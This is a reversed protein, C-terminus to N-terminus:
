VSAKVNKVVVWADANEYSVGVRAYATYETTDKKNKFEKFIQIERKIGVILNNPFTLWVEGHTNGTAGSYTGAKTESFLPVEKVQIGFASTVFGAPGNPRSGNSIVNLALSEPQVLSSSTTTMSYLYDQVLGSGAYFRLDPRRQMYKRPLQKIANNFTARTIGAGGNDVVRANAGALKSWGDFIKLTGDSSSTDGNIFVDELDNGFQTAMMRAIHDALADGELGDELSETSIEWDLRIKTTTLSIKSFTAGANVGDDVAETAKRILREGISVKDIDATNSRMRHKRVEQTLVTADFMYDIFRDSQEANLVGGGAAGLETRTIVKELINNESM